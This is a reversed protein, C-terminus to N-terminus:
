KGKISAVYADVELIAGKGLSLSYKGDVVVGFDVGSNPTVTHKGKVMSLGKASWGRNVLARYLAKLAQNKRGVETRGSTLTTGKVGQLFDSLSALTSIKGKRSKAKPKVKPEAKPKEEVVEEQKNEEEM